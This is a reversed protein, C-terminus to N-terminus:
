PFKPIALFNQGYKNAHTISKRQECNGGQFGEPCRCEYGNHGDVCVLPESCPNSYCEDVGSTILLLTNTFTKHTFHM